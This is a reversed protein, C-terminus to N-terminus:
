GIKVESQLHLRYRVLVEGIPGVVDDRLIEDIALGIHLKEDIQLQLFVDVVFTDNGELVCDSLDKDQLDFVRSYIKM